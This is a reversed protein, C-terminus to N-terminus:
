LKNGKNLRIMEGYSLGLNFANMAQAIRKTKTGDTKASEIWKSYYNQHSKALKDFYAKAKKDDELCILLEECIKVEAKDEELQFAIKEGTLNKKINKRITANIPIIFDGEGMPILSVSEIKFNDILGKVRFSKKCNPKIKHAIEQPIDVYTWGTKEGQEKFKKLTAIFNVKM